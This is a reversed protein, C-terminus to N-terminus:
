TVVVMTVCLPIKTSFVVQPIYRSAKDFKSQQLRMNGEASHESTNRCLVFVPIQAGDRVNFHRQSPIEKSDTCVLPVTVAALRM